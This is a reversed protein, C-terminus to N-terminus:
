SHLQNRVTVFVCVSMLRSSLWTVRQMVVTVKGDDFEARSCCKGRCVAGPALLCNPAPTVTALLAGGVGPRRARDEEPQQGTNACSEGRQSCWACKKSSFVALLTLFSSRTVNKNLFWSHFTCKPSWSWRWVEARIAVGRRSGM